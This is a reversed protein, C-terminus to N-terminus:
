CCTSLRLRRIRPSGGRALFSTQGLPVTNTRVGDAVRSPRLEIQARIALTRFLGSLVGDAHRELTVLRPTM